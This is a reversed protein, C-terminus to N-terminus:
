VDQNAQSCIGAVCPDKTNVTSEASELQIAWHTWESVALVTPVTPKSDLNETKCNAARQQVERRSKTDLNWVNELEGGVGTSLGLQM